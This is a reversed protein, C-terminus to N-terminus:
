NKRSISELQGELYSPRVKQPELRSGDHWAPWADYKGSNRNVCDLSAVIAIRAEEGIGIVRVIQVLQLFQSLSELTRDMRVSQERIMDM